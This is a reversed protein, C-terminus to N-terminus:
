FPLLVDLVQQGVRPQQVESIQGRGGYSIRAEAIKSSDIINESEIDEPRVVGAVIMERVEFNVRVEQRGEIVLNGNPLVQTVIAAINTELQESRNVSGTGASSNSSEADVLNGLDLGSVSNELGFFNKAGMNEANTRSRKTQNSIQAKDTVKVKVTLIDGVRHARQDKFFARSGAKWLSNAERQAPAPEPMPLQVPRYGAQTVPNQIASLNPKEGVNNLRDVTTCGSLALSTAGLLLLTKRRIHRVKGEIM